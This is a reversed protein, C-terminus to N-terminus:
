LRPYMTTLLIQISFKIETNKSNFFHSIFNYSFILNFMKAIWSLNEYVGDICKDLYKMDNLSDYTIKGDRRDLVNTIEEYVRQQIAQDKSLEYICFIMVTSLSEYWAIFFVFAQVAM